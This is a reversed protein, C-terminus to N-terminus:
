GKNGSRLRVFNNNISNKDLNGKKDLKFQFGFCNELSLSESIIKCYEILIENANNFKPIILFFLLFILIFNNLKIKNM